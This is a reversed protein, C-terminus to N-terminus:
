QVSIYKDPNAMFAGQCDDCCFGYTQGKYTAKRAQLDIKDGSVPCSTNIAIAGATTALDVGEAADGAPQTAQVPVPSSSPQQDCAALGMAILFIGLVKTDVKQM